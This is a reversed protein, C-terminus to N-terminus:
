EPASGEAASLGLKARIDDLIPKFDATLDAYGHEVALRNGEEAMVLAEESKGLRALVEGQHALSEALSHVSGLERCIREQEKLFEMAGDLDNKLCLISAQGGLSQSLM